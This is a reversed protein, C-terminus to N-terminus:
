SSVTSSTPVFTQEEAQATM